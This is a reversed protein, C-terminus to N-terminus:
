GVYLEVPSLVRLLTGPIPNQGTVTGEVRNSPVVALLGQEQLYARAAALEMGTVNPVPRFPDPIPRVVVVKVSQGAAVQTGPAPDTRVVTYPDMTNDKLFEVTPSLDMGRLAELAAGRDQGTLDPLTQWNTGLSVQVTLAQGEKVTRGAAPQQGCVLGAEVAPNYVEEWTM